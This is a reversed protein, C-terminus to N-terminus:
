IPSKQVWVKLQHGWSYFLMKECEPVLGEQLFIYNTHRRAGNFTRAFFDKKYKTVFYDKLVELDPLSRVLSCMVKTLGCTKLNENQSINSRGWPLGVSAWEPFYRGGSSMRLLFFDIELWPIRKIKSQCSGVKRFGSLSYIIKVFSFLSSCRWFWEGWFLFFFESLRSKHAHWIRKETCCLEANNVKPNLFFSCCCCGRLIRLTFM